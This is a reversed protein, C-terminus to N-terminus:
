SPTIERFLADAADAKTLGAAQPALALHAPVQGLRDSAM